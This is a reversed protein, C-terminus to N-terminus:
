CKELPKGDDDVLVCKGELMQKEFMNIKEVLLTASKGEEQAGSTSAMNGSEVQENAPDGLKNKKAEVFGEDDARSSGSAKIWRCCPPEWEYEVRITENTYGPGELNSVDMVLNDSFGNCADVETLNKCLQENADLKRLNAKTLSTRSLKNAYSAPIEKMVSEHVVEQPTDPNVPTTSADHTGSPAASVEVVQGTSESTVTNGEKLGEDQGSTPSAVTASGFQKEKVGRGGGSEKQSLFGREM